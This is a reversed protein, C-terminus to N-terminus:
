GAAEQPEPVPPLNAALDRADAVRDDFLLDVMTRLVGRDKLGRALSHGIGPVGIVEVHGCARLLTLHKMDPLCDLGFLAHARLRGTLHRTVTDLNAAVAGARQIPWRREDVTDPRISVQPTFAIVTDAGVREGFLLAAHGGMSNGIVRITHPAIMAKAADIQRLVTDSQGDQSYWTSVKDRVSLLWAGDRLMTAVFEERFAGGDGGRLDARRQEPPLAIGVFVVHLVPATGPRIRIVTHDDEYFTGALPDELYAGSGNAQEGSM